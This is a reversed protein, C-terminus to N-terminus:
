GEAAARGSFRTKESRRDAYFLKEPDADAIPSSFMQNLMERQAFRCPCRGRSEGKKSKRPFGWDDVMPRAQKGRGGRKEGEKRVEDGGTERRERSSKVVSLFVLAVMAARPRLLRRRREEADRSARKRRAGAEVEPRESSWSEDTSSAALARASAAESLPENGFM